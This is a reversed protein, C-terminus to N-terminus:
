TWSLLFYCHERLVFFVLFFYFLDQSPERRGGSRLRIWSFLSLFLTTSFNVQFLLHVRSNLIYIFHVLLHLFSHPNFFLLFRSNNLLFSSNMLTPLRFLFMISNLRVVLHIFFWTFALILTLQNLLFALFFMFSLRLPWFLTWSQGLLCSRLNNRWNFVKFFSLLRKVILVQSLVLRFILFVFKWLVLSKGIPVIIVLVVIFFIIILLYFFFVLYVFWSGLYCCHLFRWNFLDLFFCACCLFVEGVDGLLKFFFANLNIFLFFCSREVLCRVLRQGIGLQVIFHKSFFFVPHHLM